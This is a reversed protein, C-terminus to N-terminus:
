AKVGIPPSTQCALRVLETRNRVGAKALVRTVQSKVTEPHTDRKEAIEVNTLGDVLFRCVEAEASTLNAWHALLDTRIISQSDPDLLMLSVGHLNDGLENEADRVPTVEVLLPHGGVRRQASLTISADTGKGSATSVLRTIAKQLLRNATDDHLCLQGRPGIYLADNKELLTRAATNIVVPDGDHRLICFGVQIHDLAGLVAQYRLRLERYSRGMDLAKALHSFTPRVRELAPQPISDLAEDFQFSVSDFWAGNDNLRFAIRHYIGFHKALFVSDERGRPMDINRFTDETSVPTQKPLAKLCDFAAKEYHGFERLYQNLFSMDQNRFEASGASMQWPSVDGTETLMLLSSKAGVINCLSDVVEGWGDSAVAADYISTMADHWEGDGLAKM